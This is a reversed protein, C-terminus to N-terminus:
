GRPRSPKCSRALATARRASRPRSRTGRPMGVARLPLHGPCPRHRRSATTVRAPQRRPLRSPRPQHQRRHPRCQRLACRRWCPQPAHQPPTAVRQLCRSPMAGSFTPEASAPPAAGGRGSSGRPRTATSPTTWAPRCATMASSGAPRRSRKCLGSQLVAAPGAPACCLLPRARSHRPRAWRVGSAPHHPLESFLNSYDAVKQLM